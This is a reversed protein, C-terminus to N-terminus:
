RSPARALLDAIHDALEQAAPGDENSTVAVAYGSEWVIGLAANMGPAGGNHGRIQKGAVRRIDFGAAYGHEPNM